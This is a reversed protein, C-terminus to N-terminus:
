WAENYQGRYCTSSITEFAEMDDNAIYDMLTKVRNKTVYGFCKGEPYVVLTGAFEHGGIHSSGFVAIQDADFIGELQKNFEKILIPGARGCRKDRAAHCCVLVLRRWPLKEITFLNEEAVTGLLIHNVFSSISEVTERQLHYICAQPYCIIDVCESSDNKRDCATLKVKLSLKHTRITYAIAKDLLQAISGEQSEVKNAWTEPMCIVVHMDISKVSNALSKSCANCSDEGAAAAASDGGEKCDKAAEKAAPQAVPPPVYTPLSSMSADSCLAASMARVRLAGSTVARTRRSKNIRALGYMAVVSGVGFAVAKLLAAGSSDGLPVPERGM